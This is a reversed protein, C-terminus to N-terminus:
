TDEKEALRKAMNQLEEFSLSVTGACNPCRGKVLWDVQTNSDSEPDRPAMADIAFESGCTECTLTESM